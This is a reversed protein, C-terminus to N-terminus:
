MSECLPAVPWFGLCCAHKKWNALHCCWNSTLFHQKTSNAVQRWQLCDTKYNNSTNNLVASSVSRGCDLVFRSKGVWRYILKGWESPTRWMVLCQRRSKDTWEVHGPCECCCRCSFIVSNSRNPNFPAKLV